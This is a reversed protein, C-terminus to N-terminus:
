SELWKLSVQAHQQQQPMPHQMLRQQQQQQQQMRMPMMHPQHHYPSGQMHPGNMMGHTNKQMPPPQSQPTIYMGGPVGYMQPQHTSSGSTPTYLAMISDTNLM